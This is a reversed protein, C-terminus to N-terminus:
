RPLLVTRFIECLRCLLMKRRSYGDKQLMEITGQLLPISNALAAADEALITGKQVPNSMKGFTFCHIGSSTFTSKFIVLCVFVPCEGVGLHSKETRNSEHFVRFGPM